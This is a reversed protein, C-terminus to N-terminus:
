SSASTVPVKDNRLAKAVAALLPTRTFPKEIVTGDFGDAGRKLLEESYGSMYIVQLTPRLAQLRAALERGSMGPMVMDTLLLDLPETWTSMLELASDPTGAQLVQYGQSELIRQAAMRVAEEDEVLLITQASTATENAPVVFKPAARAVVADRAPLLVRVTTGMGVESYITIRGGAQQAVGYATALGLGTGKGQGKTTFFPEFARALVDKSMGEGSDTVTVQVYRGAALDGHQAASDDDYQENTTSILLTGGRPMADGANVVLNLLLQELQGRDARVAWLGTRLRMEVVISEPLTRSLLVHLAQILENVDLDEPRVAGRRAFTLLQTTFRTAREAAGRIQALDAQNVDDPALREAIFECYNLVIALLNNFDHAIGGVLRGISELRESQRLRLELALRHEEATRRETIDRIFASFVEGATTTVPTISIEIPFERGDRASADLELRKGLVPGVGTRQYLELGALHKARYREPIILDSLSAGLAHERSWGFTAEAQNSWEIIQGQQNMGVVADLSADIMGRVRSEAHRREGLEAQVKAILRNFDQGLTVIETPGSVGIPGPMDARTEARISRSLDHIPKTILRYVVLTGVLLLILGAVNIWLNQAVLDSVSTLAIAIDVGAYVKWDHGAVPAQAYLRPAGDVDRGETQDVGAVFATGELSRGVWDASDLSRGVATKGDATTILFEYRDPGAFRSGLVPGLGELDVFGAVVGHGPIPVASVASTGGTRSDPIPGAFTAGRVASTFWAAGGYGVSQTPGPSSSCIVSGDLAIFDLHTKHFLGQDGFVLNCSSSPKDFLAVLSPIAATKAVTAELSTLSTAVESAALDAAFQAERTVEDRAAGEAQARVYLTSAVATATFLLILAALYAQLGFTSRIRSRTM